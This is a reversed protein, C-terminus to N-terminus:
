LLSRDNLTFHFFSTLTIGAFFQLLSTHKPRESTDISHFVSYPVHVTCFLFITGFYRTYRVYSFQASADANAHIVRMLTKDRSVVSMECSSNSNGAPQLMFSTPFM